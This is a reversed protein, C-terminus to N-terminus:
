RHLLDCKSVGGERPLSLGPVRDNTLAYKRRRSQSQARSSISFARLIVESFSSSSFLGVHVFVGAVGACFDGQGQRRM